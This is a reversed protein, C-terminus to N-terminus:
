GTTSPASWSRRCAVRGCGASSSRTTARSGLSGRSRRGRASGHVIEDLSELDPLITAHEAPTANFITRLAGGPPMAFLDVMPQRPIRLGAPTILTLSEPARPYFVRARGRDLRRALLRRPPRPRARARRAADDYHIVLDDFGDLWEPM